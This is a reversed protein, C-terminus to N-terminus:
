DLARTNCFQLFRWRTGDPETNPAAPAFDCMHWYPQKDLHPMVADIDPSWKYVRTIYARECWPLMLAYVEAGGIVFAEGGGRVMAAAEEATHATEAGEIHLEGRTLVINRRGKLPKGHPLSALTKRGMIVTGGTTKAKFFVMDQPINYLLRGKSGIAWGNDACAILSLNKM